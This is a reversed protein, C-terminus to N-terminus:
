NTSFGLNNMEATANLSGSWQWGLKYCGTCQSVMAHSGTNENGVINPGGLTYTGVGGAQSYAVVYSNAPIGPGTIYAGGEIGACTKSQITSVTLTGTYQATGVFSGTFNVTGFNLASFPIKFHVWQGVIPTAYNFINVGNWTPTDASGNWGYARPHPSLVLQQTQFSNDNVKLDFELFSFAGVEFRQTPCLNSVSGTGCVPLFGGSGPWSIAIDYPGPTPSGSTDSFNSTCGGYDFNVGNCASIGNFMFAQPVSQPGVGNNTDVAAVAYSYVTGPGSFNPINCNTAATDQYAWCQFNVHSGSSGVTQSINVSYTGAGGGGTQGTTYQNVITGAAVGAGFLRAGPLLKGDAIGTTGGSVSSVTLTTGSIYGNITMPTAISDYLTGNRYINYKAVSFAGPTAADWSLAQYNANSGSSYPYPQGQFTYNGSSPGNNAGGQNIVQLNPPASALAGGQATVAFQAGQASAGNVNMMGLSYYYTQGPQVTNDTYTLFSQASGTAGTIATGQGGLVQTRYLQLSLNTGQGTVPAWAITISTQSNAVGSVIPPGYMDYRVLQGPLGSPNNATANAAVWAAIGPYIFGHTPDNWLLGSYRLTGLGVDDSTFSWGMMTSGDYVACGALLPIVAATNRPPFGSGGYDSYYDFNQVQKDKRMFGSLDYTAVHNIQGSSPWAAPPVQIGIGGAFTAPAKPITLGNLNWTNEWTDSNSQTYGRIRSLGRPNGPFLANILAAMTTNTDSGNAGFGAGFSTCDGFPTTPLAARVAQVWNDHAIAFNTPNAVIGSTGASPPSYPGGDNFQYSYEDNNKHYVFNQNQEVTLGAWPNPMFYATNTIATGPPATQVCLYNSSGSTVPTGITSGVGSNYPSGAPFQYLALAQYPQIRSVYNIGPSCWNPVAGEYATGNWGNFMMGWGGGVAPVNYTTTQGSPAGYYNPVTITGGCTAAYQPLVRTNATGTGWNGAIQAASFTANLRIFNIGMMFPSNYRVAQQYYFAQPIQPFGPFQALIAAQLAAGTAGAAQTLALNTPQTYDELQSIHFWVMYATIAPTSPGMCANIEGIYGGPFDTAQTQNQNGNTLFSTGFEYGQSNGYHGSFYKMQPVSLTGAIPNLPDGSFAFSGAGLALALATNGTTTPTLPNGLMNFIGPSLQLTEPGAGFGLRVGRGM